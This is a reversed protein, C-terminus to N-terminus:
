GQGNQSGNEPGNRPIAPRSLRPPKCRPTRGFARRQPQRGRCRRRARLYVGGERVSASACGPIFLSTSPPSLCARISLYKLIALAYARLHEPDLWPWLFSRSLGSEINGGGNCRRFHHEIYSDNETVALWFIRGQYEWWLWGAKTDGETQFGTHIMWSIMDIGCTALTQGGFSNSVKSDWCTAESQM